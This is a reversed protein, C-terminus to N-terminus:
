KNAPLDITFTSGKGLSSIIKLGGENQKLLEKIIGMGIGTGKEGSTGTRHIIQSKDIIQKIEESSLGIGNDIIATFVTGNKQSVKTIIRGGEPTFKIANSILNRLITSVANRDAFALTQYDKDLALEINKSQASVEFLAYIDEVQDAVNITEPKYPFRGMQTRSWDLLNNLTESLYKSSKEMMSGLEKLRGFQKTELLYNIQEELGQLSYLPGRLDHGIIGFLRDKTAVSIELETKQQNITATRESIEAELIKKDNELQYTRWKLAGFVLAVFSLSSIILFWPQLYYPRAVYIPIELRGITRNNDTGISQIFLNHDGYTLNNLRITNDDLYNWPTLSLTNKNVSDLRYAYRTNQPATYDFLSMRFIVSNVAPDIRVKIDKSITVPKSTYIANQNDFELYRTVKLSSSPRDLKIPYFSAVGGNGGGFYLKGDPMQYHFHYVFDDFPLGDEKTWILIENTTKDLQMLGYGSPMWLQNHNDEYVAYVRLHSLGDKETFSQAKNEARNWKILGSGNTGLWFVGDSDEHFHYVENFFIGNVSQKYHAVIGNLDDLLFMGENTGLWLGDSSRYFHNVVLTELEKFSNYKQYPRLEKKGTSFVSLGGSRDGILIEDNNELAYMSLIYLNDRNPYNLPKPALLTKYKGTAPTYHHIGSFKDGIYIGGINDSIMESVNQIPIKGIVENKKNVKLIDEQNILINGLRDDVIGGYINYVKEGLVDEFRNERLKISIIGKETSLWIFDKQGFNFYISKPPTEYKDLITTFDYLFFGKEDFLLFRDGAFTWIRNDQDIKFGKYTNNVSPIKFATGNKNKLFFRELIQKDKNIKWIDLLGDNNPRSYFNGFFLEDNKGAYMGDFNQPLDVTYLTNGFTDLVTLLDHEKYAIKGDNTIVVQGNWKDVDVKKEFILEFGDEDYKYLAGRKTAIWINKRLDQYSSRMDAFEFDFSTYDKLPVAQETIPDFVDLQKTFFAFGETNWKGRSGFWLKGNRDEMIKEMYNSSLGNQKITYHVFEHGDFRNMGSTTPIWVFGQSDQYIDSVYNDTLGDKVTYHQASTFYSQCSISPHLFISLIVVILNSLLKGVFYEILVRHYTDEDRFSKLFSFIM